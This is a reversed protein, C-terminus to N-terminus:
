ECECSASLFSFLLSLVSGSAVGGPILFSVANLPSIPSAPHSGSCPAVVAFSYLQYNYLTTPQHLDQLSFWLLCSHAFNVPCLCFLFGHGQVSQLQVWSRLVFVCCSWTCTCLLALHKPIWRQNSCRSGALASLVLGVSQLQIYWSFPSLWSWSLGPVPPGMDPHMLVTDSWSLIQTCVKCHSVSVQFFLGVM